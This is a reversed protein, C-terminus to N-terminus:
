KINWRLVVQKDNHTKSLNKEYETELTDSLINTAGKEGSTQLLFTDRLVRIVYPSSPGKFNQLLTKPNGISPSVASLANFRFNYEDNYIKQLLDRMVSPNQLYQKQFDSIMQQKIQHLETETLESAPSTNIISNLTGKQFYEGLIDQYVLKEFRPVTWVVNMTPDQDFAVLKDDFDSNETMSDMSSTGGITGQINPSRFHLTDQVVSTFGKGYGITEPITTIVSSAIAALGSATDMGLQALKGGGLFPGFFYSLVDGNTIPANTTNTRADAIKQVTSLITSASNGNKDKKILDDMIIKEITSTGGEKYQLDMIGYTNAIDDYIGMSAIAESITKASVEISDTMSISEKAQNWPINSVLSIAGQKAEESKQSLWNTADELSPFTIGAIGDIASEIGGGAWGGFDSIATGTASAAGALAAGTKNLANGFAPAHTDIAQKTAALAEKTWGIGGAIGGKVITWGESAMKGAERSAITGERKITAIAKGSMDGLVLETETSGVIKYGMKKLWSGFELAYEDPNKIGNRKMFGYVIDSAEGYLDNIDSWAASSKRLSEEKQQISVEADYVDVMLIPKGDVSTRNTKIHRDMIIKEGKARLTSFDYKGIVGVQNDEAVNAFFMDLFQIAAKKGKLKEANTAERPHLARVLMTDMACGTYKQFDKSCYIDDDTANPGGGAAQNERTKVAQYWQMVGPAPLQGLENGMKSTYEFDVDEGLAKALEPNNENRNSIINALNKSKEAGEGVMYEWAKGVMSGGLPKELLVDASWVAAGAIALNKFGKSSKWLKWFVFLAGIRPLMERADGSFLADKQEILWDTLQDSSFNKIMNEMNDHVNGMKMKNENASTFYAHLTNLLQVYEANLGKSQLDAQSFKGGQAPLIFMLLNKMSTPNKVTGNATFWEGLQMNMREQPSLTSQFVQWDTYLKYVNQIGTSNRISQELNETVVNSDAFNEVTRGGVQGLLGRQLKEWVPHVRNLAANAEQNWANANGRSVGGIWALIDAVPPINKAGDTAHTGHQVKLFFDRLEVPSVGQLVCMELIMNLADQNHAIEGLPPATLTNYAYVYTEKIMGISNWTMQEINEVPFDGLPTQQMTVKEKTSAPVGVPLYGLEGKIRESVNYGALTEHFKKLINLHNIHEGRLFNYRTIVDAQAQTNPFFAAVSKERKELESIKKHQEKMQQEVFQIHQINNQPESQLMKIEEHLVHWDKLKGTFFAIYGEPDLHPNAQIQQEIKAIEEMTWQSYPTNPKQVHKWWESDKLPIRTKGALETPYKGEWTQSLSNTVSDLHSELEKVLLKTDKPTADPNKTRYWEQITPNNPIQMAIINREMDKKSAELGISHENKKNVSSSNPFMDKRAINELMKHFHKEQSPIGVKNISLIPELDKSVLPMSDGVTGFTETHQANEFKKRNLMLDIRSNNPSFESNSLTTEPHSSQVPASFYLLRAEQFLLGTSHSFFFTKM